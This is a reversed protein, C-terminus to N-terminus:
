EQGSGFATVTMYYTQGAVLNALTITPGTNTVITFAPNTAVGIPLGSFSQTSYYLKYGQVKGSAADPSPDWVFSATACKSNFTSCGFIVVFFITRWVFRIACNRMFPAYCSAIWRVFFQSFGRM